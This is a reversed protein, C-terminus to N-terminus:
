DTHYTIVVEAEEPFKDGKEFDTKGNISVKEVEGVDDFLGIVVDDITDTTIFLFGAKRLRKEVDKYDEGELDDSDAPAKVKKGTSKYSDVEHKFKKENIEEILKERKDNWEKNKDEEPIIQNAKELALDYKEDNMLQVAETYISQLNKKEDSTKHEKIIEPVGIVIWLIICPLFMLLLGKNERKEKQYSKSGIEKLHIEQKKRKYEARRLSKENKKSDQKKSSISKETECLM